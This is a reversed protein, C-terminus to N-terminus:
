SASPESPTGSTHTTPKCDMKSKTGTCTYDAYNDAGVLEVKILGSTTDIGKFTCKTYHDDTAIGSWEPSKCDKGDSTDLTQGLTEKVLKQTEAASAIMKASSELAAKRSDNITNMISPVAIVLIIALIVIVALLEVLTFGNRKKM